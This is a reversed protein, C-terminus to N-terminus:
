RRPPSVLDLFEDLQETKHQFGGDMRISNRLAKLTVERPVNLQREAEGVILGFLNTVRSPRHEIFWGLAKGLQPSLAVEPFSEYDRLQWKVADELAVTLADQARRTLAVM